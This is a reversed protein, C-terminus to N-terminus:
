PLYADTFATLAESRTIEDRLPPPPGTRSRLYALFDPDPALHHNALLYAVADPWVWVGDTRVIGPVPQGHDPDIPDPVPDDTLRVLVDADLLYGILRAAEDRDGDLLAEAPLTMGPSLALRSPAAVRVTRPPRLTWLLDGHYRALAQYAFAATTPTVVDVSAEALGQEGFAGAVERLRCTLEILAPEPLHERALVVYARHWRATRGLGDPSRWAGWLAEVGDPLEEMVSVDLQDVVDREAEGVEPGPDVDFRWVPQEAPVGAGTLLADAAAEDDDRVAQYAATLTADPVRGALALLRAHWPRDPPDDHVPLLGPGPEPAAPEEPGDAEPLTRTPRHEGCWAAYALLARHATAADVHPPPGTRTELYARFREPPAIGHRDLYHAVADPWVWVGDTRVGDPFTGGEPSVTDPSAEDPTIAVPAALLYDLLRAREAVDPVRAPDDGDLVPGRRPDWADLAEAVDLPVPAAAAWLLAGFARACVPYTLAAPDSGEQVVDVVTAPDADEAIAQLDQGTRLLIAPDAAPGVTVLYVRRPGADEGDAAQLPAQATWTRWSRWLGTAHRIQRVAAVMERDARDVGPPGDDSRAAPASRATLDAGYGFPGADPADPAADPAPAFECSPHPTVADDDTIVLSWAHRAATAPDILSELLTAEAWTLPIEREAVLEAIAQFGSVTLDTGAWRRAVLRVGDPIRGALSTLLGHMRVELDAADRAPVTSPGPRRDPPRGDDTSM